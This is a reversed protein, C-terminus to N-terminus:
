TGAAPEPYYMATWINRIKGDEIWFWESFANSGAL